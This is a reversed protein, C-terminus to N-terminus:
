MEPQLKRDGGGGGFKWQSGGWKRDSGVVEARVGVELRFECSGAGGGVEQGRGKGCEASGARKQGWKGGNGRATERWKGGFYGRKGGNGGMEEMEGWKGGNEDM